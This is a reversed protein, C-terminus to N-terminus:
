QWREIIMNIDDLLKTLEEKYYFKIKFRKFVMRKPNEDIEWELCALCPYKEPIDVSMSSCNSESLLDNYDEKDKLEWYKDSSIVISKEIM